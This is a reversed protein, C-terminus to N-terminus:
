PIAFLLGTVVGAQVAAATANLPPQYHLKPACDGPRYYGLAYKPTCIPDLTMQYPLFILQTSFKAISVVPQIVPHYTHGYRELPVDEFYLPYHYFNSPEWQYVLGPFNRQPFAGESFKVDYREAEKKAFERIDQDITMDYHPSIESIKRPRQPQSRYGSDSSKDAPLPLDKDAEVRDLLAFDKAESEVAPEDEVVLERSEQEAPLLKEELSESETFETESSAEGAIWSPEEEFETITLPEDHPRATVPRVRGARVPAPEIFEDAEEVVENSWDEDVLEEPEEDPIPRIPPAPLRRQKAKTSSAANPAAADGSQYKSKLDNWRQTAAQRDAPEAEVVEASVQRIRSRERLSVRGQPGDAAIVWPTFVSLLLVAIAAQEPHNWPPM